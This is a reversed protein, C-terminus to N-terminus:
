LVKRKQEKTGWKKVWSKVSGRTGAWVVMGKQNSPSRPNGNIKRIKSGKRYLGYTIM